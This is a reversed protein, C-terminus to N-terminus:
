NHPSLIRAEHHAATGSAPNQTTPADFWRKYADYHHIAVGAFRPYPRFADALEGIAKDLSASGEEFFTTKEPDGKVEATEQGILIRVRKAHEHAYKIEDTAHRISGDAGETFDRYVMVALYGNAITDLQEIAHFTFPQSRAQWTVVGSESEGDLWFPLAIGLAFVPQKDSVMGCLSQILDLFDRLISEREATGFGPLLYPEIDFQFGDLRDQVPVAQNYELARTLREMVAAHEPALAWHPDGELAHVKLGCEHAARLCQALEDNTVRPKGSPSDAPLFCRGVEVFLLSIGKRKCLAFLRTQEEKQTLVEANWVWMALLLPRRSTRASARQAGALATGQEIGFLVVLGLAVSAFYTFRKM